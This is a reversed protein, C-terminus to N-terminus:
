YRIKLAQPAIEFRFRSAYGRWDGDTQFEQPTEFVLEVRRGRYYSGMRNGITLATLASLATGLAGSDLCLLHLLGDDLHAAPVMKMGFGYYPQKVVAVSLLREAVRPADDVAYALDCRRHEKFYARLTARV